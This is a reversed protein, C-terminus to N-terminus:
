GVIEIWHKVEPLVVHTEPEVVNKRDATTLLLVSM